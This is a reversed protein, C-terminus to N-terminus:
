ESGNSIKGRNNVLGHKQLAKLIKQGSKGEAKLEEWTRVHGHYEGSCTRDLVVIEGESVGVRRHTQPNPSNDLPVSNNLAKQGDKPAPSKGGKSNGNSNTHHYKADKYVGNSGKEGGTLIKPKIVEVAGPQNANATKLKERARNKVTQGIYALKKLTSKAKSEFLDVVKPVVFTDFAIDCLGEYFHTSLDRCSANTLYIYGDEVQQYLKQREESSFIAKGVVKGTGYARQAINTGIIVPITVQPCLVVATTILATKAAFSPFNTIKKECFNYTGGKWGEGIERCYYFAKSGFSGNLVKAVYEPDEYESCARLQPTTDDDPTIARLCKKASMYSEFAPALHHSIMYQRACETMELSTNLMTKYFVNNSKTARLDSIEEVLNVLSQHLKQQLKDGVCSTYYRPNYHHNNLEAQAVSSLKYSGWQVADGYHQSVPAPTQPAGHQRVREEIQDLLKLIHEQQEPTTQTAFSLLKATHKAINKLPETSAEKQVLLYKNLTHLLKSHRPKQVLTTDLWPVAHLQQYLEEPLQLTKLAGKENFLMWSDPVSVLRKFFEDLLERPKQAHDVLQFMCQQMERSCSQPFPGSHDLLNEKIHFRRHLKEQFEKRRNDFVYITEFVGMNGGLQDFIPDDRQCAPIRHYRWKHYEKYLPNERCYGYPIFDQAKQIQGQEILEQAYGRWGWTDRDSNYNRYQNIKQQQFEDRNLGSGYSEEKHFTSRTNGCKDIAWKLCFCGISALFSVSEFTLGSLFGDFALEVALGILWPWANHVNIDHETIYYNKNELVSISILEVPEHVMWMDQISLSDDTQRLLKDTPLLTYLRQWHTETKADNWVAIKQGAAAGIVTNQIKFKLYFPVQYRQVHIVPQHTLSGKGDNCLILTGVKLDEVPVYGDVTKILTGAIFGTPKKQKLQEIDAKTPEPIEERAHSSFFSFLSILFLFTRKM